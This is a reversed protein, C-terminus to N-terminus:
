PLRIIGWLSNGGSEEGAEIGGGVGETGKQASIAQALHPQLSNRSQSCQTQHHRSSTETLAISVMEILQHSLAEADVLSCATLYKSKQPCWSTMILRVLASCSIFQLTAEPVSFVSVPAM